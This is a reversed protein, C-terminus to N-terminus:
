WEARQWDNTDAQDVIDEDETEAGYAKPQGQSDYYVVSPVKAGAM